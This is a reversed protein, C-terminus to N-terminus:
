APPPRSFLRYSPAHAVAIPRVSAYVQSALERVAIRLNHSLESVVIEATRTFGRWVIGIALAAICLLAVAQLVPVAHPQECLEIACFWGATGALLETASPVNARARKAASVIAATVAIGAFAACLAWVMAHDAGGLLHAGGFIASHAAIAAPLGLLAPIAYFPWARRKVGIM